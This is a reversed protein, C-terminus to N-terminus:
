LNNIKSGVDEQMRSMMEHVSISAKVSTGPEDMSLRFSRDPQIALIGDSVGYVDVVHEETLQQGLIFEIKLDALLPKSRIGNGSMVCKRYSKTFYAGGRLFVEPTTLIDENGELSLNRSARSSYFTLYNLQKDIRQKIKRSKTNYTAFCDVDDLSKHFMSIGERTDKLHNLHSYTPSSFRISKIAPFEYWRHNGFKSNIMSKRRIVIILKEPVTRGKLNILISSQGNPVSLTDYKLHNKVIWSPYAVSNNNVVDKEGHKNKSLTSFSNLLEPSALVSQYTYYINKQQFHLQDYVGAKDTHAPQEQSLINGIDVWKLEISADKVLFPIVRTKNLFSQNLEVSVILEGETIRKVNEQHLNFLFDKMSTVDKNDNIGTIKHDGDKAYSGWNGTKSDAKTQFNLHWGGHADYIRRMEAYDSSRISEMLRLDRVTTHDLNASDPLNIESQDFSISVNQFPYYGSNCVIGDEVAIPVSNGSPGRKMVSFIVIIQISSPNLLCDIPLNLQLTTTGGIRPISIPGSSPIQRLKGHDIDLMTSDIIVDQFNSIIGGTVVAGPIDSDTNTSLTEYPPTIDDDPYITTLSSAM